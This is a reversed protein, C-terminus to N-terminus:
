FTYIKKLMKDMGNKGIGKQGIGNQGYVIKGMGNQRSGNHGTVSGLLHQNGHHRGSSVRMENNRSLKEIM